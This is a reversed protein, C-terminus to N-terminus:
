DSCGTFYIPIIINIITRNGPNDAVFRIVAWGSVPVDITNREPPDILNFKETDRRPNFNGFGQGVVYFSYGHLHMPHDEVSFIATDQLVIQVESGFKM